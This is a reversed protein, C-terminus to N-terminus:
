LCAATNSSFQRGTWVGFVFRFPRAGSYDQSGGLAIRATVSKTYLGGQNYGAFAFLWGAFQGPFGREFL